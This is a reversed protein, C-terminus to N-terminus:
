SAAASDEQLMLALEWLLEKLTTTRDLFEDPPVAEHRKASM